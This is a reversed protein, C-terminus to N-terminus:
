AEACATGYLVSGLHALGAVDRIPADLMPLGFTPVPTTAHALELTRERDRTALASQDRGAAGLRRAFGQPIDLEAAIATSSPLETSLTPEVRNVISAALTYGKDGLLATFDVAEDLSERQPSTVVVFGTREDTLLREVIKIREAIPEYTGEFAEFFDTVDRFMEVGTIKQLAGIVFGGSGGIAKLGFRSMKMSPKLFWRLSKGELFSLMRRPSDLLDRAHASPPTDIVILDYKGGRDLEYLRELAMYEQVGGAQSIQHYIRNSLIREARAPEPATEEVLRDFTIKPDLMLAHLSGSKIGAMQGTDLEPLKVKRERDDLQTLGMADALRRAPDITLVCVRRGRQAEAVAITAALSTKGVGGSGCVLLIEVPDLIEALHEHHSGATM